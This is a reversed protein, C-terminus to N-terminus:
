YNGRISYEKPAITDVADFPMYSQEHNKLAQIIMSFNAITNETLM